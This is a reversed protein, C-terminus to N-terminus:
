PWGTSRVKRYEFRYEIRAVRRDVANLIDIIEYFVKEHDDLREKVPELHKFSMYAFVSVCIVTIGTHSWDM